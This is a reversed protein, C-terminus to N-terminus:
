DVAPLLLVVITPARTRDPFAAALGKYEGGGDACQDLWPIDVAGEASREPAGAELMAARVSRTESVCARPMTAWTCTYPACACDIAVARCCTCVKRFRASRRKTSGAMRRVSSAWSPSGVTATAASRVKGHVANALAILM